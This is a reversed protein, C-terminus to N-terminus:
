EIGRCRTAGEAGAEVARPRERRCRRNMTPRGEVEQGWMHSKEVTEDESRGSQGPRLRQRRNNMTHSKERAGSISRIAM